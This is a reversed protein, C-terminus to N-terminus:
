CKSLKMESTLIMQYARSIRRTDRADRRGFRLAAKTYVNALTALVRFAGRRM